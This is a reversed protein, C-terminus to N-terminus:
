SRELKSVRKELNDLQEKEKNPKHAKNLEYYLMGSAGALLLSEGLIDAGMQVAQEQTLPTAQYPLKLARCMKNYSKFYVNAFGYTVKAFRPSDIAYRQLRNTVPKMITKFFLSGFKFMPFVM